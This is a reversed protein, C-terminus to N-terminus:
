SVDEGNRDKCTGKNCIPIYKETWTLRRDAQRLCSLYKTLYTHTHIVDATLFVGKTLLYFLYSHSSFKPNLKWKTCLNWNLLWKQYMKHDNYTVLIWVIFGKNLLTVRSFSSECSWNCGYFAPHSFRPVQFKKCFKFDVTVIKGRGGSSGRKHSTEFIESLKGNQFKVFAIIAPGSWALFRCIEATDNTNLAQHQYARQSSYKFNQHPFRTRGWTTVFSTPWPTTTAWSVCEGWACPSLVKSTDDESRLDDIFDKPCTTSVTACALCPRSFSLSLPWLQIFIVLFCFIIYTNCCIRLGSCKLAAKQSPNKQKSGM